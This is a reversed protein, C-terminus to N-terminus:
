DIDQSLPKGIKPESTMGPFARVAEGVLYPALLKIAKDYVKRPIEARVHIPERGILLGHSVFSEVIVPQGDPGKTRGAEATREVGAGVIDALKWTGTYNASDIPM